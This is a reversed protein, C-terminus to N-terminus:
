ELSLKLVYGDEATLSLWYQGRSLPLRINEERFDTGTESYVVEGNDSVIAITFPVEAEMKLDLYYFDPYKVDFSFLRRDTIAELVSETRQDTVFVPRMASLVMVATCGILVAILFGVTLARGSHGAHDADPRCILSGGRLLVACEVSLLLFLVLTSLCPRVILRILFILAFIGICGGFVWALRAWRRNMEYLSERDTYIEYAEEPLSPDYLKRFYHWGNFTSSVYEWGQERFTELYRGMDDVKRYDLQYRYRIDPNKVFRNRLCGGKILQWGNESARNLDAIEKRYNWASYFGCTTKYKAGM